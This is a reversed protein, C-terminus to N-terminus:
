RRRYEFTWYRGSTLVENWDEPHDDTTVILGEAIGWDIVDKAWQHIEGDKAPVNVVGRYKM